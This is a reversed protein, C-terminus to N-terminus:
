SSGGYSKMTKEDIKEAKKMLGKVAYLDHQTFLFSSVDSLTPYKERLKEVSGLSKKERAKRAAIDEETLGVSPTAEFTLSIDPRSNSEFVWEFIAKSRPMHWDTTIVLMRRWKLVDAFQTRAFYANGITDYSTLEMRMADLPIEHKEHLYEASAQSELVPSGDPRELNRLHATGASLTLIISASGRLLQEKYYKAALDCRNQVFLPPEAPTSPRGGGLVIIADFDSNEAEAM